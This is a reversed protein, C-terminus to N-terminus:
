VYRVIRLDGRGEDLIGTRGTMVIAADYPSSNLVRFHTLFRNSAGGHTTDLLPVEPEGNGNIVGPASAQIAV